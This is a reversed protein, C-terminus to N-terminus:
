ERCPEERRYEEWPPLGVSERYLNLCNKNQARFWIVGDAEKRGACCYKTETIGSQTTLRDHVYAYYKMPTQGRDCSAKIMPLYIEKVDKDSHQFILWAAKNADVGVVDIDPYGFAAILKILRQTNMSVIPHSAKWAQSKSSDSLVESDQVIAMVVRLAQDSVKMEM